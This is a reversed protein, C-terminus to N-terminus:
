LNKLTYNLMLNFLHNRTNGGYIGHNKNPYVFQDFTKNSEILANIMELSNQYHVNDDSSGHIILFKGQLQNAFNVPSNEEYGSKNEAPTRMFRETYINDYWKWNTVPAVAIGMKFTGNGKTMALTTMFGGYSWGQIGLRNGDVYPLKKLENAVTLIDETELKGLNLYTSKKFAAGRFQTGRSDVAVVIYGHQALVQHYMYDQGDWQDVVENKGPGCYLTVYVPYKKSPDFNAPKLIWANLDFAGSRYTTFEKQPLNYSDLKAKLTENGELLKILKGNQDCLSYSVPKNISSYANVFYTFGKTFEADTYGSSASILQKKTGDRQISYVTKTTAGQEASSFFLLDSKEQIGYFDIVDWKGSTIQKSSGDFGIEYLHNYGDIESTRLISRGSSLISLNDDIEIYTDSKETFFPKVSLKSRCDILHYTLENQHRNLTLAVLMRDAPSWEIRPIYEYSGLNIAKTKKSSLDYLQLNVKSNNEGAKPYKFTYYNPYTEKRHFDMTFDPVASEDFKLFALYKSDPSWSYGKTIAFEEEYVWDTSGNIIANQQGDTTVQRIKGSKLDKIFLNNEYCYSVFNGDPSYEALTQPQHQEDLPALTGTSLDYLYYSALFSHRYISTLGTMILIKTEDANFAYDDAIIPQGNFSFKDSSMIISGPKNETLHYKVIKQRQNSTELKTYHVGDNMSRFGSFSNGWFEYDRWIKEITLQPTQGVAQLTLFLVGFIIYKISLM